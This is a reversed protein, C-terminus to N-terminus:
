ANIVIKFINGENKIGLKKKLGPTTKKTPTAIKGDQDQIWDKHM